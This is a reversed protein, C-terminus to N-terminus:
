GTPLAVALVTGFEMLRSDRGQDPLEDQNERLSEYLWKKPHNKVQRLAEGAKGQM